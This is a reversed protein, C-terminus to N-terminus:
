GDIKLGNMGCVKGVYIWQGCNLAFDVLFSRKLMYLVISGTVKKLHKGKVYNTTKGFGIKMTVKVAKKTRLGDKVKGFFL